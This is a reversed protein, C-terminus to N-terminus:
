LSVLEREPNPVSYRKRAFQVGTRRFSLVDLCVLTRRRASFDSGRIQTGLGPQLHAIEEDLYGTDVLYRRMAEELFDAVTM